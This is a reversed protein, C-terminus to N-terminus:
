AHSLERALIAIQEAPLLNEAIAIEGDRSVGKAGNTFVEDKLSIGSSRRLEKRAGGSITSPQVM